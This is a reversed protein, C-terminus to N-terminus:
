QKDKRVHAYGKDPAYIPRDFYERQSKHLTNNHTSATVNHFSRWGNVNDVHKHPTPFSKISKKNRHGAKGQTLYEIPMRTEKTLTILDGQPHGPLKVFNKSEQRNNVDIIGPLHTSSTHGYAM